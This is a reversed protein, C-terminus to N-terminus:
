HADPWWAVLALGGVYQSGASRTGSGFGQSAAPRRPDFRDAGSGGAKLFDRRRIGACNGHVRDSVVKLM